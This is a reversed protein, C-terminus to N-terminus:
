PNTWNNATNVQTVNEGGATFNPITWTGTGNETATFELNENKTWTINVGIRTHCALCAENAGDMLTENMADLVFKRHAAKEGTDTPDITLNFGGVPPVYYVHGTAANGHCRICDQRNTYRGEHAPPHWHCSWCDFGSAGTHKVGSKDGSHCYMCAITSAAHAEVGPQADTGDGSAYAYSEFTSDRRRVPHIRHCYECEFRGYGTEGTHPGVLADMEETIDAHCKECPVDNGEPNLDYWTHQGSFLSVTSPLAFIGVAVIAVTLLVIGRSKM